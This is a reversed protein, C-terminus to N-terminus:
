HVQLESRAQVEAGSGLDRHPTRDRGSLSSRLTELVHHRALGRASALRLHLWEEDSYHRRLGKPVEIRQELQAIGLLDSVIPRIARVLAEDEPTEATKYIQPRHEPYRRERDRGPLVYAGPDQEVMANIQTKTRRVTFRQIEGRVVDVEEATLAAGGVTRRRDLRNLIGLTEDEFNDPGLLGVLNLLDAAGKSIPTATFLLVNDALSERVQRTRKSAVNLFNHAEDVALIQAKRM